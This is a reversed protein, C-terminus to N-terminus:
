LLVGAWAFSPRGVERSFIAPYVPGGEIVTDANDLSVEVPSLNKVKREHSTKTKTNSKDKSVHGLSAKLIGRPPRKTGGVM